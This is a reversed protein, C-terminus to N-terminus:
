TDMQKATISNTILENLQTIANNVDTLLTNHKAKVDNILATQSDAYTQSYAVPAAGVDAITVEATSAVASVVFDMLLVVGGVLDTCFNLNGVINGASGHAVVAGEHVKLYAYNDITSVRDWELPDFVGAPAAIAVNAAYENGSETALDGIVYSTATDDYDTSYDPAGHLYQFNFTITTLNAAINFENVNVQTVIEDDFAGIGQYDTIMVHDTWGTFSQIDSYSLRARFNSADEIAM